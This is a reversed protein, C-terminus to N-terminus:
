VDGTNSAGSDASYKQNIRASSGYEYIAWGAPLTSDTTVTFTDLLDFNQTYTLAGPTISIQARSVFFACYAALLLALKKMSTQLTKTGRIEPIFAPVAFSCTLSKKFLSVARGSIAM